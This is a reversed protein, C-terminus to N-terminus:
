FGEKPLSFKEKGKGLKQHNAPLRRHSKVQFQTVGIEAEMMMRCKGSTYRDRRILVSNMNCKQVERSWYTRMMGSSIVDVIVRACMKM